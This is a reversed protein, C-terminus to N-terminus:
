EGDNISEKPLSAPNPIVNPMNMTQRIMLLRSSLNQAGFLLFIWAYLHALSDEYVNKMRRVMRDIVRQPINDTKLMLASIAFSAISQSDATMYIM